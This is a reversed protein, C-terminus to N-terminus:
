AILTGASLKRPNQRICIYEHEYIPTWHPPFPHDFLDTDINAYPYRTDLRLFGIRVDLGDVDLCLLGPGLGVGHGALMGFCVWDLYLGLGYLPAVPYGLCKGPSRGRIRDRRM